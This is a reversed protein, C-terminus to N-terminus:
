KNRVTTMSANTISASPRDRRRIVRVHADFFGEFELDNAIRLNATSTFGGIPRVRFCEKVFFDPKAVSVFSSAWM